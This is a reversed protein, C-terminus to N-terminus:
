NQNIITPKSDNEETMNDQYIEYTSSVPIDVFFWWGEAYVLLSKKWIINHRICSVV